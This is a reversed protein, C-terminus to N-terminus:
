FIYLLLLEFSVQGGNQWDTVEDQVEILPDFLKVLLSMDGRLIAEPALEQVLVRHAESFMEAQLLYQSQEWLRGQSQCKLARAEAVWSIPIRYQENLRSEQESGILDVNRCLVQKVSKM